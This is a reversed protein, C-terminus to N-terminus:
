RAVCAGNVCAGTKDMCPDILCQVGPGSCKPLTEGKALARCDCGTCYDATVSCDTDTTCEGVPTVTKKAVCIGNECAASTNMCPDAFCNVGPGTCAPVTDGAGLVRCDCGTCYDAAVSCDTDTTCTPLPPPDVQCGQVCSAGKPACTGCLPDCCYQGGTCTNKGCAIGGTAGATGAGAAGATGGSNVTGAVGGGIHTVSNASGGSPGGGTGNKQANTDGGVNEDAGLGCAALTFSGAMSLTLATLPYLKRLNMTDEEGRVTPHGTPDMETV